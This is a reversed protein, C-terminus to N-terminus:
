GGEGGLSERIREYSEQRWSPANGAAVDPFFESLNEPTVGWLGFLKVGPTDIVAGGFDLPYHRASTTTHRGKDNYRSIDGTRLHLQPQISNILSSKGVGSHGALVTEQGRLVDRLEDLGIGAVASTRLVRVGLSQYHELAAKAEDAEKAIASSLKAAEASKKAERSQHKLSGTRAAVPEIPASGEALPVLEPILDVKNVCLIATLGGSQAAILMRDILGWKVKPLKLSAVILMQGANAVIPHQEIAKFSDARTLVTKRPLIQEIVAEPSDGFRLSASQALQTVSREIAAKESEVVRFRVRDGVVLATDSLKSLTKRVVALYTSGEHHVESYVSYVQVVEGIPLTAVDIGSEEEARLLATRVIKEQEANKNRASFRQQQDVRDEDLGGSLYRSTLDKERPGKKPKGKMRRWGARDGVDIGRGHYRM